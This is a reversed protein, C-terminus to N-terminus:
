AVVRVFRYAARCQCKEILLTKAGGDHAAIAAAGGAYGFGVVVVDFEEDFDDVYQAPIDSSIM